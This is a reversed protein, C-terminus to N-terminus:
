KRNESSGTHSHFTVVKGRSQWAPRWRRSATGKGVVTSQPREPVTRWFLVEEGVQEKNLYKKIM